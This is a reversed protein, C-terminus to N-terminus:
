EVNVNPKISNILDRDSRSFTGKIKGASDLVINGTASAIRGLTEKEEKSGRHRIIRASFPSIIYVM